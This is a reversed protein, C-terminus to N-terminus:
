AKRLTGDEPDRCPQDLGTMMPQKTAGPTENMENIWCSLNKGLYEDMGGKKEPIM